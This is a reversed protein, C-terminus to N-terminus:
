SADPETLKAIIQERVTQLIRRVTRQSRKLELSIKALSDGELRRQFVRQEAPALERLVQELTEELAVVEDPTPEARFLQNATAEGGSANADLQQDRRYDRKEAGHRAAQKRVKNVAMTALLRWLDGSRQFSFEHSRRFFSRFVSQVIDESDVRRALGPSLRSDVLRLLRQTFENVLDVSASEQKDALDRVFQNWSTEMKKLFRQGDWPRFPICLYALTM